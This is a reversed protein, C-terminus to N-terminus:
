RHMSAHYLNEPLHGRRRHIYKEFGTEFQFDDSYIAGFDRTNYFAVYPPAPASQLRKTELLEPSLKWKEMRGYKKTKLYVPV